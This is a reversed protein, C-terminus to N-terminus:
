FADKVIKKVVENKVKKLRGAESLEYFTGDGWLKELQYYARATKLFIHVVVDFFDMLVWDMSDTGEIKAYDFDSDKIRKNIELAVANVQPQSECTCIVFFDAPAYDVGTLDMILIDKAIKDDAVKACFTALSKSSYLKSSTTM